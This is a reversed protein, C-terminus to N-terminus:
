SFGSRALGYPHSKTGLLCLVETIQRFWWVQLKEHLLFYRLKGVLIGLVGSYELVHKYYM